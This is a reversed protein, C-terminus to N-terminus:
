LTKQIKHVKPPLSLLKYTIFGSFGFLFNLSNCFVQCKIFMRYLTEKKKWLIMNKPTLIFPTFIASNTATFTLYVNLNVAPTLIDCHFSLTTLYFSMSFIHIVNYTLYLIPQDCHNITFIWINFAEVFWFHPFFSYNDIYKCDIM